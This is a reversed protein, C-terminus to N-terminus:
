ILQMPSMVESILVLAKNFEFCDGIVSIEFVNGFGRGTRTNQAQSDLLLLGLELFIPRYKTM